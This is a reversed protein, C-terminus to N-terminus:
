LNQGKVTQIIQELSQLINLYKIVLHWNNKDQM